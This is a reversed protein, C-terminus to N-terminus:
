AQCGVWVCSLPRLLLTAVQVQCYREGFDKMKLKAGPVLAALQVCLAPARISLQRHAHMSGPLLALAATLIAARGEASCRQEWSRGWVWVWM